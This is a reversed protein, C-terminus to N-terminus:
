WSNPYFMNYSNYSYEDSLYGNITINPENIAPQNTNIGNSYLLSIGSYGTPGSSDGSNNVAHCTLDHPICAIYIYMDVSDDSRNPNPGYGFNYVHYQDVLQMSNAGYFGDHVHWTGDPDTSLQYNSLPNSGSQAFGATPISFERVDMADQEFASSYDMAMNSNVVDYLSANAVYGNGCYLNGGINALTGPNCMDGIDQATYAKIGTNNNTCQTTAIKGNWNYQNDPSTLQQYNIHNLDDCGQPFTYNSLQNGNPGTLYNNIAQQAETYIIYQKYKFIKFLVDHAQQYNQYGAPDGMFSPLNISALEPDGSLFKIRLLSDIIQYSQQLGTDNYFLATKVIQTWQAATLLLNENTNFNSEGYYPYQNTYSNFANALNSAFWGTGPAISNTRTSTWSGDSNETIMLNGNSDVYSNDSDDSLQTIQTNLQQPFNAYANYIRSKALPIVVASEPPVPPIIGSEWIGAYLNQQPLGAYVDQAFNTYDGYIDSNIADFTQSSQDYTDQYYIKVFSNLTQNISTLQNEITNLQSEIQINQYDEPSNFITIGMSNLLNVALDTSLEGAVDSANEGVLDGLESIIPNLFTTVEGTPSLENLSSNTLQSRGINNQNNNQSSNSNAASNGGGSNCAVLLCSSIGIIAMLNILKKTKM